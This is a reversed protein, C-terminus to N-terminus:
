KESSKIKELILVGIYKCDKCKYKGTHGAADLIIADSKCIPCLRTKIM